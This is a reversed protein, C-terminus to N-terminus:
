RESDAMRTWPDNYFVEKFFGRMDRRFEETKDSLARVDKDVSNIQRDVASVQNRLEPLDAQKVSDRLSVISGEAQEIRGKVDAIDQQIVKTEKVVKTESTVVDQKLSTLRERMDDLRALLEEASVAPEEPEPPAPRRAQKPEATTKDVPATCAPDATTKQSPATDAAVPREALKEVKAQLGKVDNGLEQQTDTVAQLKRDLRRLDQGLRETLDRTTEVAEMSTQMTGMDHRLSQVSDSLRGSTRLQLVILAIIAGTLIIALVALITTTKSTTKQISEDNGM